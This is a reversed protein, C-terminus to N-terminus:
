NMYKFFNQINEIPSISMIIPDFGNIHINEFEQPHLPLYFKPKEGETQLSLKKPNLDIGGPAEISSDIPSTTGAVM